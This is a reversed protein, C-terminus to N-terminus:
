EYQYVKIVLNKRGGKGFEQIYRTPNGQEDFEQYDFFITDANGNLADRNIEMKSLAGERVLVSTVDSYLSTDSYKRVRVEDEHLTEPNLKSDITYELLGSRNFKEEHISYADPKSILGFTTDGSRLNTEMWGTKEGDKIKYWYNIGVSQEGDKSFNMVLQTFSVNGDENYDYLTRSDFNTSDYQGDYNNYKYAVIQTVDGKYGYRTLDNKGSNGSGDGCASLVPLFLFLLFKNM